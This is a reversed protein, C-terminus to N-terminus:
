QSSLVGQVSSYVEYGGGTTQKVPASMSGAASNVVFAGNTLVDKNAGSALGKIRSTNAALFEIDKALDLNINTVAFSKIGAVSSKVLCVSVGNVDSLTCTAAAVGVLPSVNYEPRFDKVAKSRSTLLRVLVVFDTSGDAVGKGNTIIESKLFDAGSGADGTMSGDVSCGALYVASLTFVLSKVLRVISM